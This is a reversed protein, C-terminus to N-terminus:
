HRRGLTPLGGSVTRVSNSRKRRQEVKRVHLKVPKVPPVKKLARLCGQAHAMLNEGRKVTAEDPEDLYLLRQRVEEKLASLAAGLDRKRRDLEAPVARNGSVHRQHDALCTRVDAALVKMRRKLALLVVDGQFQRGPRRLGRCESDM